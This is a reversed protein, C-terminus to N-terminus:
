FCQYVPSSTLAHSFPSLVFFFGAPHPCVFCLFHYVYLSGRITFVRVPTRDDHFLVGKEFFFNGSATNLNFCLLIKVLTMRNENHQSAIALRFVSVCLCVCM